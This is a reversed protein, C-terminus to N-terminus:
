LGEGEPLFSRAAPIIGPSDYLFFPPLVKVQAHGEKLADVLVLRAEDKEHSHVFQLRKPELHYKGLGRMLDAFRSAPYIM